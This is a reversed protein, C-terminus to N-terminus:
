QKLHGDDAEIMEIAAGGGIHCLEIAVNVAGPPSHAAKSGVKVGKNLGIAKGDPLSATARRVSPDHM